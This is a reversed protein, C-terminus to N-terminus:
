TIIVYNQIYCMLTLWRTYKQEALTFLKLYVILSHNLSESVSAANSENNLTNPHIPNFAHSM